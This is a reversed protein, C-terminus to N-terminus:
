RTGTRDPCKRGWENSIPVSGTRNWLAARIGIYLELEASTSGIRVPVTGEGEGDTRTGNQGAGIGGPCMWSFDAVEPKPKVVVAISYTRQPYYDLTLSSRVIIRSLIQEM